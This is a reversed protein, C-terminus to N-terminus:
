LGHFPWGEDKTEDGKQYGGRSGEGSVTSEGGARRARLPFPDQWATQSFHL